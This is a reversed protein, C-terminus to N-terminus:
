SSRRTSTRRCSRGACTGRAPLRVRTVTQEADDLAQRPLRHQRHRLDVDDRIRRRVRERGAAIGLVGRDRRGFANQLHQGVGLEFADNRVLQRVHLMAVDEDAGDGRREGRRDHHERAHRLVGGDEAPVAPAALAAIAPVVRDRQERRDDQRRQGRHEDLHRNRARALERRVGAARLDGAVRVPQGLRQLLDVGHRLPNREVGVRRRRVHEDDLRESAGPRIDSKLLWGGVSARM